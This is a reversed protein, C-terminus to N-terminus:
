ENLAAPLRSLNDVWDATHPCVWSILAIILKYDEELDRDLIPEHHAVRNRLRRIANLAKHIQKREHGRPRHPFAHRLAPRWIGTEYKPGLIAVWFGLNLEAVIRGREIPKKDARLAQKAKEVMETLPHNLNAVGPEYWNQGFKNGMQGDIANRICVELGQLPTYFAESIRTNKAYLHLAGNTEGGVQALYKTLRERSLSTELAALREQDIPFNM